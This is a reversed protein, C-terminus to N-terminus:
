RAIGRRTRVASLVRQARTPGALRDVGRAFRQEVFYQFVSLISTLVVYWVTAVMLLPIVQGSNTSAQTEVQGFLDLLSTIYVVSTGKLLGILQNAYSPLIARMAQPLVIRTFRRHRPLGLAAAAERQGPDVSIIGSRVIEAAYAAENLSLGIIAAAEYSLLRTADISFLQPGFPVSLGLSPYLATANALFLLLVILPVSRFIWVYVWSVAQLVPSRSLRMLALVIGAAFGIVASWATLKLTVVLGELIIPQFFWYGFADWQYAENQVFGRVVQALLLVVVVSAVWRWPRRLPVVRSSVLAAAPDPVHAPDTRRPEPPRDAAPAPRRDTSLSM